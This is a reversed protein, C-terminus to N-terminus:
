EKSTSDKPVAYVGAKLKDKLRYSKGRINFIQAHHLLQDLTATALVSDGLFEGWQGFSKNSTLIISGQEYRTNILQFLLNAAVSELPLYGVEDIILLKPRLYIRM